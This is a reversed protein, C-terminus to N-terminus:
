FPLIILWKRSIQGLIRRIHKVVHRNPCIGWFPARLHHLCRLVCYVTFTIMYGSEWVLCQVHHWVVASFFFKEARRRFQSRRHGQLEKLQLKWRHFHCFSLVSFYDSALSLQIQECRLWVCYNNCNLEHLKSEHLSFYSELSSWSYCICLQLNHDDDKHLIMLFYLIHFLFSLVKKHAKYM